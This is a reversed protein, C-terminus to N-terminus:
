GVPLINCIFRPGRTGPFSYHLLFRFSVQFPSNFPHFTFQHDLWPGSNTGLIVYGQFLDTHALWDTFRQDSLFPVMTKVLELGSDM